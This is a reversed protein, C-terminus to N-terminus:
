SNEILDMFVAELKKRAPLTKHSIKESTLHNRVHDLEQDTGSVLLEESHDKRALLSKMPQNRIVRGKYLIVADTCLDEMQELLHSCLLITKGERHLTKIIESFEHVGIADMGATPEDLILFDPDHVLAQALGLRQLMGKSFNKIARNQADILGVQSLVDSIRNGKIPSHYLKAFSSLLEVPTLHKYFYPAEPLYGTTERFDSEGNKLIIQYTGRDAKLVGLIIKILTSKGSGNPGLLGCISNMPISFSVDQLAHFKKKRWGLSFSKSINQLDVKVPPEM